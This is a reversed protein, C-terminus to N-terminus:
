SLFAKAKELVFRAEELAQRADAESYEETPNFDIDGYFALEREKRLRKSIEVIRQVEADTLGPFRDRHQLFLHSVDHYRPPEVGVFRLAAKLCLEVIEQAEWVADSYDEEELYRPLIKLRKEAKFLYSKALNGNTM